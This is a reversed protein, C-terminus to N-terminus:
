HCKFYEFPEKCTNCKYLAKCATAGFRSILNTDASDCHPCHVHQEAMFMNGCSSHMPPAIGYQRMKEKATDNMWDTTWAPSYVMTVKVPSIGKEQLLAKIDAEIISMAPCGTYTPTLIVEYGSDSIIVDQLMGMEQISVVPIEPDAIVSLYDLVEQKTYM